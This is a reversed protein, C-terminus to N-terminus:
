AAVLSAERGRLTTSTAAEIVVDVLEGARARGAFNV